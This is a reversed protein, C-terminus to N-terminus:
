RAEPAAAGPEGAAETPEQPILEPPKSGPFDKPIGPGSVAPGEELVIADMLEAKVSPKHQAKLGAVFSEIADQRRTRWLRVRITETAQEKDRSVSPRNGTLKVISYGGEIKIPKPAVDGVKELAFVAKAIAKPISAVDEGRLQGKDDFYRLDGGRLKTADDLTHERALKRFGRLDAETAEKLLAKAEEATAVLIHSARRTAPRQYEDLHEQYYSSVEEEAISEPSLKEDFERKMLLQVANQKVAQDVQDSKGFGRREAEDALLAFRTTKDLLKTLEEPDKYRQRMFPSQRGLTDELDAVTVQGGEYTALVTARRAEDAADPAAAAPEPAQAAAEPATAQPAPAPTQQSHAIAVASLLALAIFLPRVRSSM